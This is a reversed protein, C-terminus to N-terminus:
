LLSEVSTPKAGIPRIVIRVADDLGLKTITQRINSLENLGILGLANGKRALEEFYEVYENPIIVEGMVRGSLIADRLSGDLLTEIDAIYRM